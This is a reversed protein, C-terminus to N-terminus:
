SLRYEASLVSLENVESNVARVSWGDAGRHSPSVIASAVADPVEAAVPTKERLDDPSIRTPPV